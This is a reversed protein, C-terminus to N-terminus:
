VALLPNFRGAKRRRPKPAARGRPAAIDLDQDMLLEQMDGRARHLRSKITGASCKLVDAVEDYSMGGVSTLMLVERRTRSLKDVAALVERALIQVEQDGERSIQFDAVDSLSTTQPRRMVNIFENRLIRFIWAKFNTGTQFQDRARWAKMATEQLLDDAISRDRTLAIAYARLHPLINVLDDRFSTSVTHEM